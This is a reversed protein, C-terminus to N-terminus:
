KWRAEESHLCARLIWETHLASPGEQLLAAWGEVWRAPPAPAKSGKSAAAKGTAPEQRAEEKGGKGEAQQAQQAQQAAAEEERIRKIEDRM